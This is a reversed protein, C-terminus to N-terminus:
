VKSTNGNEIEGKKKKIIKAQTTIWAIHRNGYAYISIITVPLTISKLRDLLEQPSRGEIFQLAQGVYNLNEFM